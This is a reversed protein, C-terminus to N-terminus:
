PQASIVTDTSRLITSMANITIKTIKNSRTKSKISIGSTLPLFSVMTVHLAGTFIATMLYQSYQINTYDVLSMQDDSETLWLVNDVLHLRIAVDLKM